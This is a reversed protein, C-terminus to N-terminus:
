GTGSALALVAVREADTDAEDARHVCPRRSGCEGCRRGYQSAHDVGADGPASQHTMARGIRPAVGPLPRHM